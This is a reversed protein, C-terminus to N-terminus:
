AYRVRTFRSAPELQSVMPMLWNRKSLTPLPPLM